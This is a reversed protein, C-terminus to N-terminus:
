PTWELITVDQPPFDVEKEGDGQETNQVFLHLIHDRAWLETDYSPEWVTVSSDTLDETHCERAQLDECVAVSVYDGREIDRYVLYAKDQAGRTDVMIQPRAFPIRRSGRGSVDFPTTRQTVQQAQWSEGDHYIIHYQPVDSGDPRWYTAIYPRGQSDACMATQNMLFSHQPIRLAYEATAQTIPLTYTEGTSKQWTLGNDDSKAYCMDHNTAVDPTERWVWSIHITGQKDITTQWYANREDEGSILNDQRMSWTQTGRDYYNIMLDGRGSSGDRYFFLLNGDALRHFEPYTVHDEKHHTMPLKDTLTLSHPEISRCYRLPDVHHDWSMHLYGDGDIMISIGNHADATNGTYPTISVTWDDSGLQRQALIVRRQADYYAAYQYQNDSVVSNRRYVTANVATRAWGKGITTSHTHPM